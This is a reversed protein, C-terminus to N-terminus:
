GSSDGPQRARNTKLLDTANVLTSSMTQQWVLESGASWSRGGNQIAVGPM